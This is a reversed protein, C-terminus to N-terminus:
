SCRNDGTVMAAKAYVKHRTKATWMSLKSSGGPAMHGRSETQKHGGQTASASM